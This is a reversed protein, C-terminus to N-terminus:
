VNVLGYQNLLTTVDHGTDLILINKRHNEHETVYKIEGNDSPQLNEPSTLYSM